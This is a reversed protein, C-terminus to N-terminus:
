RHSINYKKDYSGPHAVPQLTVFLYTVITVAFMYRRIFFLIIILPLVNLFLTIAILTILNRMELHIKIRLM